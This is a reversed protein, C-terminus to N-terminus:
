RGGRTTRYLTRPRFIQLIVRYGTTRGDRIWPIRARRRRLLWPSVFSLSPAESYTLNTSRVLCPTAGLEAFDHFMLVRRCLRHTRIEFTSRYTSFSDQRVPWLRDETPRPVALDHEGYDFVLQFFWDTPLPVPVPQNDDPYYPTASGYSIQKLYRNARSDHSSEPLSAPVNDRNEPKYSYVIVNGKDDYTEALLWKFIRGPDNPDAICSNSDLGFLSTQNDKSITKWFTEGTADNRWREIRAFLGEIRPRYRQVTYNSGNRQAAFTEKTRSNSVLKPVLDETESLIFVDSEGVDDYRPLGKDTKRTISLVSLNWGLGFPGNGAGSDYSLSLKPYFDSRGPSAFIPITFSAAGTVPNAGIKEGIGRIAGGGKPLSLAPLLNSAAGTQQKGGSDQDAAAQM